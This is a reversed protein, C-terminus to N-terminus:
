KVGSNRYKEDYNDEHEIESENSRTVSQEKPIHCEAIKLIITQSRSGELSGLIKM